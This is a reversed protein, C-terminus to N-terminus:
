KTLNNNKVSTILAKEIPWRYTDIRRWLTGVNINLLRAWKSVTNTLGNCKVVRNNRKNGNNQYLTAWRCNSPSYGKNNDVRDIQLGKKYGPLMDEEFSKYDMWRKCVEIGRGGYRSFDKNEKLMCRKKMGRWVNYLPNKALWEAKYESNCPRCLDWVRERTKCRPCVKIM